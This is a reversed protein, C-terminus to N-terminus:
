NVPHLSPIIMIMMIIMEPLQEKKANSAMGSLIILFVVTTRFLVPSFAIHNKPQSWRGNINAKNQQDDALM